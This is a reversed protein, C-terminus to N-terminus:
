VIRLPSVQVSSFNSASSSLGRAYSSATRRNTSNQSGLGTLVDLRRKYFHLVRESSRSCSRFGIALVNIRTVVFFLAM